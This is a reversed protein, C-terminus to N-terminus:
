VLRPLLLRALEAHLRPAPHNIYNCLDLTTDHGSRAREQWLAYWDLLGAGSEKVIRRASDIYRDFTGSSQLQATRRAIKLACPLTDPHVYTNLMNPTVFITRCSRVLRPLMEGLAEEYREPPHLADNLGFSVVVTDPRERLVDTELRELARHANDGSRGANVIRVDGYRASLGPRLLAHFVLEPRRVTDFGCSAPFLEFCGETVSDGFFVFTKVIFPM